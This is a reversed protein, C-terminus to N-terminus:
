SMLTSMLLALLFTLSYLEKRQPHITLSHHVEKVASANDIDGWLTCTLQSITTSGLSRLLCTSLLPHSMISVRSMSGGAVQSMVPFLGQVPRFPIRNRRVTSAWDISM